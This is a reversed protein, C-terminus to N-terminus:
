VEHPLRGPPIRRRPERPYEEQEPIEDPENDGPTPYRSQTDDIRGVIGDSSARLASPNLDEFARIHDELTREGAGAHARLEEELPAPDSVRTMDAERVGITQEARELEALYSALLPSFVPEGTFTPFQSPDIPTLPGAELPYTADGRPGAVMHIDWSPAPGDGGAILSFERGDALRLRDGAAGALEGGAFYEPREYRARRLSAPSVDQYLARLMVLLALSNFPIVPDAEFREGPPAGGM